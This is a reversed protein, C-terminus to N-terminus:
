RWTEPILKNVTTERAKEDLMKQTML